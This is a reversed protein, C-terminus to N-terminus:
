QIVLIAFNYSSEYTESGPYYTALIYTGPPIEPITAQWTFIGYSNTTLSTIYSWSGVLPRAYLKATQNSLPRSFEDVLIGKLTVTEGPSAPNPNVNFYVATSLKEGIPINTANLPFDDLLEGEVFIQYKTLLGTIKDYYSLEYFNESVSANAVWCDVHRGVVYLIQSGVIEATTTWWNIISGDTVNTEIWDTYWTQNWWFDLSTDTVLRNTTDVTCWFTGNMELQEVIHTINILHPQVYENYSTNWWGSWEVTGNPYYHSHSYDAFQGPQPHIIDVTSQCFSESMSAHMSKDAAGFVTISFTSFLLLLVLGSWVHKM